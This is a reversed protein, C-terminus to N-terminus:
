QKTKNPNPQTNQKNKTKNQKAKIKLGHLQAAWASRSYSHGEAEQLNCACRVMTRRFDVQENLFKM